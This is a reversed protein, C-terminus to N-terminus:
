ARAVRRRRESSGVFLNLHHVDAGVRFHPTRGIVNGFLVHMQVLIAAADAETEPEIAKVIEGLVGQYAAERLPRPWPRATPGNM